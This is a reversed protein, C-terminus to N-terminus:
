ASLTSGPGPPAFPLSTPGLVFSFLKQYLTDWCKRMELCVLSHSLSGLACFRFAYTQRMLLMRNAGLRAEAFGDRVLPKRTESGKRSKLLIVRMNEGEIKASKKSDGCGCECPGNGQPLWVRLCLEQSSLEGTEIKPAWCVRTEQECRNDERASM